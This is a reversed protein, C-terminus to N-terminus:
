EPEVKRRQRKREGRRKKAELRAEKSARPPRTKRRPKEPELAAAVVQQLRALAAERNQHQSRSRSAVLRLVGTGHLRSALRTLLRGRQEESLAPSASVDWRLEIRTSSTNVHQGGPGGARTARLELASLPITLEANIRVGDGDMM